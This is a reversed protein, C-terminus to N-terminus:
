SNKQPERQRLRDLLIQDDRGLREAVRDHIPRSGQLSTTLLALNREAAELEGRVADRENLAVMAQEKARVLGRELSANRAELQELRRRAWLPPETPTSSARIAEDLLIAALQEYDVPEADFGSTNSVSGPQGPRGIGAIRYTRRGRIERTLLGGKAMAAVVQTFAADNQEYGVAVKLVATARGSRDEVPGHAALYEQIRGRVSHERPM